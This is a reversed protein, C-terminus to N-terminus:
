SFGSSSNPSCFGGKSGGMFSACSMLKHTNESGCNPCEFHAEQESAFCLKEFCHDCDDCKFEYIPM